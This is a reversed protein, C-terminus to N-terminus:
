NLQKHRFIFFAHHNLEGENLMHHLVKHKVSSDREKKPNEDENIRIKKPYKNPNKENNSRNLSKAKRVLKAFVCM